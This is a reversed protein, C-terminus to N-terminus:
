IHPTWIKGVNQAERSSCTNQGNKHVFKPVNQWSEMFLLTKPYFYTIMNGMIHAGEDFFDTYAYTILQVM